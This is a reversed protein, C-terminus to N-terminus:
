DRQLYMPDLGSELAIKQIKPDTKWEKPGWQYNLHNKQVAAIYLEKNKRAEGRTHVWFNEAAGSEAPLLELVKTMFETDRRFKESMQGIGEGERYGSGLEGSEVLNMVTVPDAMATERYTDMAKHQYASYESYTEGTKQRRFEVGSLADGRLQNRRENLAKNEDQAKLREAMDLDRNYMIEENARM